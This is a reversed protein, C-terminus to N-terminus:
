ASLVRLGAPRRPRPSDQTAQKPAPFARAAEEASDSTALIFRRAVAEDNVREFFPRECNVGSPVGDPVGHKVWEAAVCGGGCNPRHACGTCSSQPTAAILRDYLDGELGRAVTGIAWEARGLFGPCKYIAGDPGIAFSHHDHFECPGVQALGGTDYGLRLIEDQLSIHLSTDADSWTCMGGGNWDLSTLGELAPTFTVRSGRPLGSAALKEALPKFGQITQETYNGNISIRIRRSAALTNAFIRAFTDEGKKSVRTLCHTTEDGDLTVQATTLGYPLLDTVMEDTLFYGNTILGFTLRLGRPAVRERIRSAIRKIREPHLLPEGGCFAIHVGEVGVALARDALWDGTQDATEPKMVSGNMIEAQSCYPCEFNCALNISILADLSTTRRRRREFWDLFEAEEAERSEVVVAVDPDRLDPDSVLELERQDLELGADAKRLAALTEEDLVTFGGSLTNQVLTTGPEPFNAVYLNFGSLRM